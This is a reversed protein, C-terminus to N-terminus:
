LLGLLPLPRLKAELLPSDERHHVVGLEADHQGLESLSSDLDFHVSTHLNELSTTQKRFESM